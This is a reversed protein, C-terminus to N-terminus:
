PTVIRLSIGPTMQAVVVVRRHRPPASQGCPSNQAGTGPPPISAPARTAGLTTVSFRLLTTTAPFVLPPSPPPISFLPMRDSVSTVTLLLVQLAHRPPPM